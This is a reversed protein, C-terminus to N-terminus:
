KRIDEGWFPAGFLPAFICFDFIGAMVPALGVLGVVVGLTSGLVIFGYYVLALGAVIRILRGWTSVIFKAFKM